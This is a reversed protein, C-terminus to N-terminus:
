VEVIQGVKVEIFNSNYEEKFIQRANKGTCHSPATKKIGLRKFRDVIPKITKKHKNTLHFGGAVLYIDGPINKKINEIIKIIGPHACGTLISIGKPTKLVLAQESIYKGGYRGGIEGTTYIDKYVQTFKDIEILQGGHSKVRNKFRKSFHPCTYVKLEPNKKLIGWLGGRHDWHDHSIVIAEIDSLAIGMNKMNRLLKDSREGTDFLVKGNVLYSVGWGTSFRNDSAISDFLIKIQM